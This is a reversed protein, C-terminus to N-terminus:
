EGYWHTAIIKITHKPETEIIEIIQYYQNNYKIRYKNNIEKSLTNYRITFETTFFLEENENFRTVGSRVYVNAWTSIYEEYVPKSSLISTTSDTGKEILIRKNLLSSLM